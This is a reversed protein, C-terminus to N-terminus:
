DKYGTFWSKKNIFRHYSTNVDKLYEQCWSCGKGPYGGGFVHEYAKDLDNPHDRNCAFYASLVAGPDCDPYQHYYKLWKERNKKVQEDTLRM